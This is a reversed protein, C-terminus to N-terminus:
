RSWPRADGAPGRSSPRAAAGAMAFGEVVAGAPLPVRDPASTDALQVSVGGKGSYLVAAAGAPDVAVRAAALGAGPQLPTTTGALASAPALVVLAAALGLRRLPGGRAVAGLAPARRARSM